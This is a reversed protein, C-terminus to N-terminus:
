PDTSVQEPFHCDKFHPILSNIKPNSINEEWNKFQLHITETGISQDFEEGDFNPELVFIQGNSYDQPLVHYPLPLPLPIPPTSVDVKFILISYSQISRRTGQDLNPIILCKWKIEDSAQKEATRSIQFGLYNPTRSISYIRHIKPDSANQSYFYFAYTPYQENINEVLMPQVSPTTQGPAMGITFSQPGDTPRAMGRVSTLVFVSGILFLFLIKKIFM